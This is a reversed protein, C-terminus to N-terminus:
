SNRHILKAITSAVNDDYGDNDSLLKLENLLWKTSKLEWEQEVFHQELKEQNKSVIKGAVLWHKVTPNQKTLGWKVVSRKLAETAIDRRNKDVFLKFRSANKGETFLDEYWVGQSDLYSKCEIWILENTLGQYALIDIELDPMSPTGISAKEDKELEVKYGIRTWYGKEKCLIPFLKNLLM